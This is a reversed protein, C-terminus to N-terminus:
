VNVAIRDRPALIPSRESLVFTVAVLATGALLGVDTYTAILLAGALAVDRRIELMAPLLFILGFIHLSPAGVVMLLGLWAGARAAPIVFVAGLTMLTVALGLPRGIARSLPWGVAQWSPDGSRSAQGLWDAWRDIGVLPLTVAVIAGVILAGSLASRPRRRLVFLWTHALSVKITGILTALSGDVLLPRHVTAPDRPAPVLAREPPRYLVAVFAAFLPVQVNGGLLAEAFPAWALVIPVAPWPIALRRCAFVGTAVCFATWLPFLLVRPILLLPAVFPLVVPPYLFPLDPGAIVDFSQPLYPEAGSVWRNAARLPIELDVGYPYYAFLELLTKAIVLTTVLGFAVIVVRDLSTSPRSRM